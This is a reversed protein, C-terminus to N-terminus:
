EHEMTAGNTSYLFFSCPAGSNRKQFISNLINMALPVWNIDVCFSKSKCQETM